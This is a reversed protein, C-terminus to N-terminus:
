GQAGTTQDPRGSDTVPTLKHRLRRQHIRWGEDTLRYEDAFSAFRVPARESGFIEAILVHGRGTASTADVVDVIVDSSMHVMGRNPPSAALAARLAAKGEVQRGAPEYLCDQTFLAVVGEDDREDARHNFEHVLRLCAREVTIIESETLVEGSVGKM